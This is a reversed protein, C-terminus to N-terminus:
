FWAKLVLNCSTDSTVDDESTGAEPKGAVGYKSVASNCAM